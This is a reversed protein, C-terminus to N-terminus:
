PTAISLQSLAQKFRELDRRNRRLESNPPSPNTSPYWVAGGHLEEGIKHRLDRKALVRLDADLWVAACRPGHYASQCLCDTISRLFGLHAGQGVAGRKWISRRFDELFLQDPLYTVSGPLVRATRRWVKKAFKVARNSRYTYSRWYDTLVADAFQGKWFIAKRDVLAALQKLHTGWKWNELEVLTCAEAVERILEDDSPPIDMLEIVEYGLKNRKVFEQVLVFNPAASLVVVDNKWNALLMNLSDRGGCLIFNTYGANRAEIEAIDAQMAESMATVYCPIAKRNGTLKPPAGIRTINADIFLDPDSIDQHPNQLARVAQANPEFRGTHQLLRLPSYSYASGSRYVPYFFPEGIHHGAEIIDVDHRTWFAYTDFIEASTVRLPPLSVM